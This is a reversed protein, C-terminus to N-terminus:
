FFNRRKFIYFMFIAVILMINIVILFDGPAGIFPMSKTRMSFIAAILTLPFTFVAIITLIKIIENTKITLINQASMEASDIIEKYNKIYIVVEDFLTKLHDFFPAKTSDYFVKVKNIFKEFTIKQPEIIKIFDLVDRKILSIYKITQTTPNTLQDNINDIDAKIHTLERQLFELNIKILNYLFEPLNIESFYQEFSKNLFEEIPELKDYSITLLRNKNIIFDIEQPYVTKKIESYIPIELVIYLYDNYEEFKARSSPSELERLHAQHIDFHKKIFQFDELHPKVIYFWTFTKFGFVQRM